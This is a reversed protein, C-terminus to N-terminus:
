GHSVEEPSALSRRYRGCAEAFAPDRLRLFVAKEHLYIASTHNIQLLEAIVPYSFPRERARLQWVVFARARVFTDSRRKCLIASVGLGFEAAAIPLAQELQRRTAPSCRTAFSICKASTRPRLRHTPLTM